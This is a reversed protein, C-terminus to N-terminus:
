QGPPRPRVRVTVVRRRAPRQWEIAEHEIQGEDADTGPDPVQVEQTADYVTDRRVIWVPTDEAWIGAQPSPAHPTRVMLTVQHLSRCVTMEFLTGGKVWYSDIPLAQQRQAKTTADEFTLPNDLSERLTKILGHCFIPEIPQHEQWWGTTTNFWYRDIHTRVQEQRDAELETFIHTTFVGALGQYTPALGELATLLAQLRMISADSRSLRDLYYFLPGKVINAMKGTLEAM